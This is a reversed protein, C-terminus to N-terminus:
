RALETQGLKLACGASVKLLYAQMDNLARLLQEMEDSRQRTEWTLKHEDETCRGYSDLQQIVAEQEVALESVRQQYSELLQRRSIM